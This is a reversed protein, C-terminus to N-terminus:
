VRKARFYRLGAPIQGAAVAGRNTEAPRVRTLFLPVDPEQEVEVPEGRLQRELQLVRIRARHLERLMRAKNFVRVLTEDNM